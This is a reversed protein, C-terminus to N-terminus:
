LIHVPFDVAEAFKKVACAHQKQLKSAYVQVAAGHWPYGHVDKCLAEWFKLAEEVTNIKCEVFINYIKLAYKTTPPMNAGMIANITDSVNFKKKTNFDNM